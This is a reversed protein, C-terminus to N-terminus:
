KYTCKKRSKQTDAVLIPSPLNISKRSSCHMVKVMFFMDLLFLLLLLLLLLCCALFPPALLPFFKLRGGFFGGVCFYVFLSNHEKYHHFLKLVDEYLSASFSFSLFPSSSLSCNLGSTHKRSKDNGFNRLYKLNIICLSYSEYGLLRAFM